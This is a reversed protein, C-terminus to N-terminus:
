YKGVYNSIIKEDLAKTGIDYKLIKWYTVGDVVTKKLLATDLSDYGNSYGSFGYTIFQLYYVGKGADYINYIDGIWRNDDRAFGDVEFIYESGKEQFPLKTGIYSKLLKDMSTKDVLYTDVDENGYMDMDYILKDNFYGSEQWELVGYNIAHIFDSNMIKNVDIKAIDFNIKSNVFLDLVEYIEQKQPETFSAKSYKHTSKPLMYKMLEAYTENPDNDVWTMTENTHASIVIENDAPTFKDHIKKAKENHYKDFDYSKLVVEPSIEKKGNETIEAIYVYKDPYKPHESPYMTVTELLKVKEVIKNGKLELVEISTGLDGLYQGGTMFYGKDVLYVKGDRKCLATGGSFGGHSGDAYKEKTYIKVAKGNKMQWIEETGKNEGTIFFLYLEKKGDADFDILASYNPYNEKQKLVKSYETAMTVDPKLETADVDKYGSISLGLILTLSLLVGISKTFINKKSM